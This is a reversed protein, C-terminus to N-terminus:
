SPTIPYPDALSDLVFDVPQSETEELQSQSATLKAKKYSSSCKLIMDLTMYEAPGGSRSYILNDGGSEKRKGGYLANQPKHNTGELYDSSSSSSSDSPSQTSTESNNIEGEDDSSDSSTDNFITGSTAFSSKQYSSNNLVKGIKKSSAKIATVPNCKSQSKIERGQRNKHVGVDPSESTSGSADWDASNEKVFANDGARFPVRVVSSHVPSSIGSADVIKTKSAEHAISDCKEHFRSFPDKARDGATTLTKGYHTNAMTEVKKTQPMPVQVKVVDFFDDQPKEKFGQCDNSNLSKQLGPSTGLSGVNHKKTKKTSLLEKDSREIQIDKVDLDKGPAVEHQRQSPGFNDIYSIKTNEFKPVEMHDDGKDTCGSSHKDDRIDAEHPPREANCAFIDSPVESHDNTGPVSCPKSCVIRTGIDKEAELMSDTLQETPGKRGFRTKETKKTQITKGKKKIFPLAPDVTVVNGMPDPLSKASTETKKSKKKVKYDSGEVDEQIKAVQIQPVIDVQNGCANDADKDIGTVPTNVAKVKSVKTKENQFLTNHKENTENSFSVKDLEPKLPIAGGVGNADEIGSSSTQGKQDSGKSKKSKKRKKDDSDGTGSMDSSQLSKSSIVRGKSNMETNDLGVSYPEVSLTPKPDENQLLIKKEKEIKGTEDDGDSNDCQFKEHVLTASEKKLKGPEVVELMNLGEVSAAQHKKSRKSERGRSAEIHDSTESREVKVTGPKYMDIGVFPDAADTQKPPLTADFEGGLIGHNSGLAVESTEGRVDDGVSNDCYVKEYALTTSDKTLKGAEAIMPLDLGKVSAAQHKKSGKSKKGSSAEVHDSTDRREVNRTGPKRMDVDVFPDAADTKGSALAPDIEGGLNGHNIGFAVESTEGRVNDGVSNDCCVNDYALTTSDKALKGAEAIMPLDLGKVSAAQHKKSGKSKKGRSAEVHDSTDRREVNRTGPKRMDADVFPDAADTKGSDLAPDIEGGLNGHNIGFAVESTEGRVDDGVSNDCCVNDYALTTSNKALKGAEAIM